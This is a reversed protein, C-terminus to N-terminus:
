ALLGSPSLQDELGSATPNGCGAWTPKGVRSPGWFLLAAIACPVTDPLTHVAYFMLSWLLAIGYHGLAFLWQRPVGAQEEALVAGLVGTVFVDEYGILWGDFTLYQLRPLKFTTGNPHHPSPPIPVVPTANNIENNPEELVDSFVLACDILATVVLAERIILPGWKKGGPLVVVGVLLRGLTVVSLATIFLSCVDKFNKAEKDKPDQIWIACVLAPIVLALAIGFAILPTVQEPRHMAWGVAFVALVPFAILSLWTLIEALGPLFILVSIVGAISAPLVIAWCRGAFRHAWKPLGASPLGILLSQVALLVFNGLGFPLHFPM